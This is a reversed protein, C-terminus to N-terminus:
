AKPLRPEIMRAIRLAEACSDVPRGNRSFAPTVSVVLSVSGGDLLQECDTGDRDVKFRLGPRGNVTNDAVSIFAPGRPRARYSALTHSDRELSLIFPDGAWECGVSGERDVPTRTSPTVGLRSLEVASAAPGAGCGAALLGLAVM